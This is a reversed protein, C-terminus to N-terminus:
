GRAGRLYSSCADVAQEVVSRALRGVYRDADIDAHKPSAVGWPVVFSEVPTGGEVWDDDAIPVTADHYTKTTLTLVIYQEGHFPHTPGSVVLWPRPANRDNWPDDDWLVDGREFTM